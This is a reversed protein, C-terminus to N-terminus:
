FPNWEIHGLKGIRPALMRNRVRTVTGLVTRLLGPATTALILFAVAEVTEWNPGLRAKMLMRPLVRTRRGNWIDVWARAVFVRPRLVGSSVDPVGSGAARRGHAAIARAREYM